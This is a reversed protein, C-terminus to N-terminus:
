NWEMGSHVNLSNRKTITTKSLMIKAKTYTLTTSYIKEFRKKAQLREQTISSFSAHQCVFQWSLEIRLETKLNTSRNNNRTMEYVLLNSNTFMIFARISDLLSTERHLKQLITFLKKKIFRNWILKTPLKTIISQSPFRTRAVIKNLWNLWGNADM